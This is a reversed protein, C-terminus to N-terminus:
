IENFNNPMDEKEMKITVIYVCMYIIYVYKHIHM